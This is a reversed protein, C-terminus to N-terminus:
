INNSKCWIAKKQFLFLSCGFKFKTNLFGFYIRKLKLDRTEKIECKSIAIFIELYFPNLDFLEEEKVEM